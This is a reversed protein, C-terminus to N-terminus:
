ENRYYIHYYSPNSIYLNNNNIQIISSPPFIITYKEIELTHEKYSFPKNFLLNININHIKNKINFIVHLANNNYNIISHYIKHTIDIYTNNCILTDYIDFVDNYINYFAINKYIISINNNNYDNLIIKNNEFTATFLYNSLTLDHNINLANIANILLLLFLM